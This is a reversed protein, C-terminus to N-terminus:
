GRAPLRVLVDVAQGEHVEIGAAKGEGEASLDVKTAPLSEV